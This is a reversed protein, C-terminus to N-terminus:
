NRDLSNDPLSKCDKSLFFLSSEIKNIRKKLEFLNIDELTTTNSNGIINYGKTTIITTGKQDEEELEKETIELWEDMDAMIIWGTEAVRWINNRKDLLIAENQQGGTSFFMVDCKNDMAIRVSRDTSHNDVIIISSNPFKDRYHQIANSIILEENYCLLFITIRM